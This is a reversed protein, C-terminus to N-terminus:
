SCSKLTKIRNNIAEKTFASLKNMKNYAWILYDLDNIKDIPIQAYKGVYLMAPQTRIHKIYNNCDKCYASSHMNNQKIYYNKSGCVKCTLKEEGM